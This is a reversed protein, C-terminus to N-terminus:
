NNYFNIVEQESKAGVFKGIANGSSDVKVVTPINRVGYKMVENQDRDADLKQLPIGSAAVKDMVPGFQKCPGCWTSSIYILKNMNNKNNNNNFNVGKMAETIGDSM